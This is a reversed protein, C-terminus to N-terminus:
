QVSWVYTYHVFVMHYIDTYTNIDEIHYGSWYINQLSMETTVKIIGLSEMFVVETSLLVKHLPVILSSWHYCTQVIDVSTVNLRVPYVICGSLFDNCLCNFDYWMLGVDATVQKKSQETIKYGIMNVLYVFFYLVRVTCVKLWSTMPIFVKKGLIGVHMHRCSKLQNWMWGWRLIRIYLSKKLGPARLLEDKLIFKM